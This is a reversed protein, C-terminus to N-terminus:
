YNYKCCEQSTRLVWNALDVRVGGLQHAQSRKLDKLTQESASSLTPHPFCRSAVTVILGQYFQLRPEQTQPPLGVKSCFQPRPEQTQLSPDARPCFLRIIINQLFADKNIINVQTSCNIWRFFLTYIFGRSKSRMVSGVGGRCHRGSM